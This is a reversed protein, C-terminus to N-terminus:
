QKHQDKHQDKHQHQQTARSGPVPSNKMGIPAPSASLIPRLGIKKKPKMIPMFPRSQLRMSEVSYMIWRSTCTRPFRRKGGSKVSFIITKVLVPEPCVFM